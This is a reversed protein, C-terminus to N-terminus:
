PMIIPRFTSSKQGGLVFTEAVARALRTGDPVGRFANAMFVFDVRSKVLKTIDYADGLVLECNIIGSERLRSRTVDLMAQDIDIAVVHRAIRAIPLTFWGDGCCLDVVSMGAKVGVRALVSAM